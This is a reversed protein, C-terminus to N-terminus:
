IGGAGVRHKNTCSANGESPVVVDARAKATGGCKWGVHRPKGGHLVSGSLRKFERCRRWLSQGDGEANTSAFSQTTTNKKSAAEVRMKLKGDNVNEPTFEVRCIHACLILDTRCQESGLWAESDVAQRLEFFWIVFQAEIYESLSAIEKASARPCHLIPHQWTTTQNTAATTTKQQSPPPIPPWPSQKWPARDNKENRTIQETQQQPQRLILPIRVAQRKDPARCMHCPPFPHPLCAM